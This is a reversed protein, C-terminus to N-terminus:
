LINNRFTNHKTRANALGVGLKLLILNPEFLELLAQDTRKALQNLYHRCVELNAHIVHTYQELLFVRIPRPKDHLM